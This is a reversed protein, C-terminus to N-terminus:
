CRPFEVLANDNEAGVMYSLILFVIYLEMNSSEKNTKKNNRSMVKSKIM